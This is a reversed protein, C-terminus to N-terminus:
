HLYFWIFPMIRSIEGFARQILRENWLFCGTYNVFDVLHMKIELNEFAVGRKSSNAIDISFAASFVFSHLTVNGEISM